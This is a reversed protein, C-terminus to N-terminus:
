EKLYFWTAVFFIAGFVLLGVVFGILGSNLIANVGFGVLAGVILGIFILLNRDFEDAKQKKIGASVGKSEYETNLEASEQGASSWLWEGCHKCKKAESQIEEACYPCKITTM